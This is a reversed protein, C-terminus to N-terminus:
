EMKWEKRVKSGLGLRKVKINNLDEGSKALIKEVIHLADIENLFGFELSSSSPSFKM